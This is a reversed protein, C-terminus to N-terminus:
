RVATELSTRNDRQLGLYGYKRLYTELQTDATDLPTDARAVQTDLPTDARAVQTDLPTDARAAQTDLPTDSHRTVPSTWVTIVAIALLGLTSLM